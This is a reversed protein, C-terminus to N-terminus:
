AALVATYLFERDETASAAVNTTYVSCSWDSLAIPQAFGYAGSGIIQATLSLLRRGAPPYLVYQGAATRYCSMRGAIPAGTTAVRGRIIETKTSRM